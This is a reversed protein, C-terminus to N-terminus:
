STAICLCATSRDNQAETDWSEASRKGTITAELKGRGLWIVSSSIERIAMSVPDKFGKMLLCKAQHSFTQPTSSFFLCSIRQLYYIGFICIQKLLKKFLLSPPLFQLNFGTNIYM